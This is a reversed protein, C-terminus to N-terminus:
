ALDEARIPLKRIRKGTASFIANTVAPAIAPTSAEGIGGPPNTNTIIYTEIVPMEDIRLPEYNNFNTQQVRGRDITIEGRLAASLGYVIGSEIQQVVIAPNVVQGCDVACVVRHVRLKGKEISIEAVQANFSGLNDVVAIGRHRGAPLPKGWGAKEAALELVGLMRPAKSLLKRRFEVPDQKATVALEDMFSETFFTNHSYGVSRWYSVPIGVEPPHYEVLINPITYRIEAIGEVGTRDVGNRLGAFSPCVVRAQWVTPQGNADLASTFRTYSAPRYTDHQLDDDRTWQLKVPAKAVKSIEVAEGIFDAGGRRGFGGGLYVTHIQVKEAPLGSAAAAVQRAVSQIQMGSWVDCGDPRVHAVANLPEMPAHSLYPVEYVAEIAKGAASLAAAADGEKRAVAGTKEALDSFTKRITASSTTALSGEDWQVVLAKRGEMAAWTNDALVAVGNSIQVVDKVGPVAKTKTADFSKVKGGFVPCRQLTAYLMGSVKLDIGFTTKGSVKAPTDMRKQSKGVLKFQTPDKLAVNQQPVPLKSAAEALSGYSVRENTKLNLVTSNEARCQSKSVNWKQAAAQVLMECATAGAKRLPEWSTRISMSGFVGQMPGFAVPDVGPFETHIKKWDCELEEALLMSLSTVTGQGMEAKHIYLTVADDTGIQVYANLKGLANQASADHNEPLYFGLVLGGAAAASTKLFSRRDLKQIINSNSMGCRGDNGSEVRLCIARRSPDSCPNRFLDRV